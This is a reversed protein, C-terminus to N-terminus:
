YGHIPNFDFGVSVQQLKQGALFMEISEKATILEGYREAKLYLVRRYIDNVKGIAAESPGILTLRLGQEQVFDAIAKGAADAQQESPSAVAVLLLNWVPPYCLLQRYAIEREYFQVYDQACAAVVAYHGPQYTQIIAEGPLAGRGARGVAQTLLQFTREAARYDSSHLSLDAALVGVLTVKPFDHGKVIMQTGILIDAEENAFASLIREYSDKARTTDYDMRLVRASPFRRKVLEEIKQTGARFAGIYRSGCGPCVSVQPTEYGCYHCKLTGDRHLSLSVDCHPCKVVEGCARCSVFGAMGRRNLFLMTQEHRKLRQEIAEQLRTSLISRNGTRLEERLDVIECSALSSEERARRTLFFRRISGQEAAFSSELSPTASGLIVSANALRAREYATERAHYRPVTESKYSTEHEEDIIIYGLNSFPTFLASRPGIMVDLEGAKARLFQDYREGASLRSHLISVREGFRSYFRMLTQFTLAIEPILVISAKGAAAARAILEMYVETKGSGTVGHLLYRGCKGARADADIEEVVAQQESNLSIETPQSSIRAIPNRYANESKICIAGAQEMARLVSTTINLKHLVVEYEIRPHLLLAELLRARATQHKRKLQQLLEYAEERDEISLEVTRKQQLRQKTKVPLVTRLAQNMTGGYCRRMWAALTILQSEIAVSQELIEAIEKIKDPDFSTHESLEIVYANRLKNAAGFPVRVQMGVAIHEKLAQPVSYCFVRDLREQSIDIIVNAYMM